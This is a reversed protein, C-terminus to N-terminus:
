ARERVVPARRRGEVHVHPSTGEVLGVLHVMQEVEPDIAQDGIAGVQQSVDESARPCHLSWAMLVGVIADGVEHGISRIFCCFAQFQYSRAM